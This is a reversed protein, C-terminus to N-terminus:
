AVALLRIDYVLPRSTNSGTLTLRVKVLDAGSLTTTFKFEVYGDGEQTTGASTMATWEGSDVQIEPTVTAGSPVYGDYILVARAAGTAPISRTYYTGSTQVMGMLVQTGPWLVPSGATDGSLKATVSLTGSAVFDSLQVAQGEAVTMVAGSPLGLEYEVHTAASPTESCALLMLDSVGDSSITASGLPVTNTGEVFDAALLRFAIDKTQHATWTSANSSSLLVGVTYPQASVWQQHASDFAGMEAIAVATDADDCLIVLAYETSASLPVPADFLIRTAVSAGATISSAPVIAETLVSRTPYGGSTERIQVRVGSAGKATFFLDVGSIQRAKELVFTQALPDIYTNVVSQVTRLTTTELTGQGVFTAQATSGGAGTFVVAKVGAPVNAPVTFHGFLKGSADAAIDSEAPTIAIGDFTVRSLKEGSGFGECTFAISIQRLYEIASYSVGATETSSRSSTVTSGHQPHTPAYITRYFEKTVPSTWTTNTVTWRDVAPTLTAKGPMVAFALYPNIKMEGTMLPQELVVSSSSSRAAPLKVDSSVGSVSARIPLTLFGNVVAATQELGQDRMSDDLLPDVFIGVRAGAERTAVDSELRQRAIEQLAYEVRSTLAELDSFPIVRVGDNTVVREDKTRWTQTVSALALMTSPVAPAKARTESAVGQIWSFAGDSTICLRDVRPLAQQYSVLIDSGQVAGSVSFGDFDQGSPIVNKAIYTYSVTYTSGTAPEAGSPSWDVTDGTRKFDTGEAYTTSGQVVSVISRVSTESLADACGTYSGHVVTETKELTVRLATISRIPPHAVTIRQTASGDAVIAETDILRLDPEAAYTLRRSTLLEVGYGCVRCRGEAVTYIQAGGVDDAARVTMGSCVYTGGGTSDRDYRAIGQTVSDLDPPTEKARVVGDDITYIPYFSGTGGDGDYSWVAQVKRRWAGPEGQGRSGVAPNLLGADEAESVITERLRIGISFTGQTPITFASAPVSYVTGAIYVQGAEATVSGSSADVSIQADKIIDGDSFIADGIGRVHAATISELENIESAQTGYGDRFLIERYEKSTDYRNWYNDINKGNPTQM